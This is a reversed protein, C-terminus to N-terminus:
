EEPIAIECTSLTEYVHQVQSFVPRHTPIPVRCVRRDEMSVPSGSYCVIKINQPGPATVLIVCANDIHEKWSTVTEKIEEIWKKEHHRRIQSGASTMSGGSRDHNSQRGGQGKRVIYRHFARHVVSKGAKFVGGAFYGGHLMLVVWTGAGFAQLALVNPLKTPVLSDDFEVEEKLSEEYQQVLHNAAEELPVDGKVDGGEYEVSDAIVMEEDDGDVGEEDPQQATYPPPTPTRARAGGRIEQPVRPPALSASILCKYTTIVTRRDDLHIEVKPSNPVAQLSCSIGFLNNPVEALKRTFSTRTVVIPKPPPTSPRPAPPPTTRGKKGKGQDDAQQQQQEAKQLQKEKQDKKNQQEKKKRAIRKAEEDQLRKLIEDDRVLEEEKLKAVEQAQRAESEKNAQEEKAKSEMHEKYKLAQAERLAKLDDM